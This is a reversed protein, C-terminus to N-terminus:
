IFIKFHFILLIKIKSMYLIPYNLSIICDILYIKIMTDNNIICVFKYAKPSNFTFHTGITYSSIIDNIGTVINACGGVSVRVGVLVLLLETETSILPSAPSLIYTFPVSTPVKSEVPFAVM